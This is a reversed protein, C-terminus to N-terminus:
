CVEIGYCLMLDYFYCLVYRKNKFILSLLFIKDYFFLYLLIVCINFSFRDVLIILM